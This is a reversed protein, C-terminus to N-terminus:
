GNHYRTQIYNGAHTKTTVREVVTHAHNEMAEVEPDETQRREFHVTRERTDANRTVTDASERSRGEEKLVLWIPKQEVM